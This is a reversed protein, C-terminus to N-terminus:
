RGCRSYIYYWYYGLEDQWYEGDFTWFLHEDDAKLVGNIEQEFEDLAHPDQEKLEVRAAYKETTEIEIDLARNSLDRLEEQLRELRQKGKKGVESISLAKVGVIDQKMTEALPTGAIQPDNDIRKVEEDLMDIYALGRRLDRDQVAADLVQQLTPDYSDKDAHQVMNLFDYVEEPQFLRAVLKDVQAKLPEYTAKYDTLIDVVRDYHCNTYYITAQLLMAEPYYKDNFFPSNLTLLLGLAKGFHDVRYYTWSAEFLSELWMSSNRSFANYYKLATNWSNSAKEREGMKWLTSGVQYFVRGLAAVTFERLQIESANLPEREKKEDLWRLTEKFSDLAAQGNNQRVYTVGELYRSRPYYSSDQAVNGVFFVVDDLKSERYAAMALIYGVESYLSPDVETPFKDLYNDYVRSYRRPEGPLERGIQVLYPLTDDFEKSGTTVLDFHNLASQYYGMNYFARGLEFHLQNSLAFSADDGVAITDYLVKAGEAYQKSDILSKAQSYAAYAPSTMDIEQTTTTSGGGFDMSGDGGFDMGDGGGFDMGDDGGFDFGDQALAVSPSLLLASALLAAAIGRKGSKFHM